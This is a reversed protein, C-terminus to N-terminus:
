YLKTQGTDTVLPALCKRKGFKCKGRHDPDESSAYQMKIEMDQYNQRPLAIEIFDKVMIGSRSYFEMEIPDKPGKFGAFMAPYPKLLEYLWRRAARADQGKFKMVIKTDLHYFTVPDKVSSRIM